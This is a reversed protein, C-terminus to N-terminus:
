DHTWVDAYNKYLQLEGEVLALGQERIGLVYLGYMTGADLINNFLVWTSTGCMGVCGIAGSPSSVSGLRLWEETLAVGEGVPAGWFTGTGCSVEMVFPLKRGNAVDAIDPPYIELNSSLRHNFVCVGQNIRADLITTNITTPFVDFDVTTMGHQLMIQRTYDKMSPNSPIYWTHAACWARTYWTTDSLYPDSEYQITRTIINSLQTLTTSPLRGVGLDPVPDPTGGGLAGFYDDFQTGETALSYPSPADPDGVITVLELQGNSQTYQTSIYNRIQLASTGTQTTTAYSADIGKKRRWTVLKQVETIIGANDGCIILQKGPVVPLADLSSGPFNVFQSYMRKFGPTLSTPTITVENEGSGGLNDLTVEIHDYVRMEHTMPNVQIPYVAVVVFRIDRLTAPGIIEAVQPPYWVDAGYIQPDSGITGNLPAGNDGALPQVPAPLHDLPQVTFSQDTVTLGINGTNSVIALRTVRPLDPVGPDLTSGEGNITIRAYDVGDVNVTELSIPPDSFLLSVASPDGNLVFVPMFTAVSPNPTAHVNAPLNPPISTAASAWVSSLTSFSLVFGLVLPLFIHMRKM